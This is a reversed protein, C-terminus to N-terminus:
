HCAKQAKEEDKEFYTAYKNESKAQPNNANIIESIESISTDFALPEIVILEWFNDQYSANLEELGEEFALHGNYLINYKATVANYTRSIIGDRQPSCSFLMLALGLFCVQQKYGSMDGFIAKGKKM